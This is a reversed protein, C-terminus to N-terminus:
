RDRTDNAADDTSGLRGAWREIFALLEDLDQVYTAEGSRVHQVWARWTQRTGPYSGVDEWWIRLLFADRKESQVM